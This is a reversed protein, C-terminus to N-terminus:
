SLLQSHWCGFLKKRERSLSVCSRSKCWCEKWRWLWWRPSSVSCIVNQIWNGTARITKWWWRVRPLVEFFPGIWLLVFVLLTCSILSALQTKGGVSYQILSRSLSASSPLCCFFSGLINGAGQISSTSHLDICMTFEGVFSLCISVMALLEQNFDIEYKQKQAFILAMSVTVSYSVFAIACSDFILERWLTFDHIHPEPFGTPIHGVSKVQYIEDFHFIKAIVTGGVVAILEIPIPISSRRSLLPKLIENNFLLITITIVSIIIAAYNVGDIVSFIAWYTQFYFLTLPFIFHELLANCLKLLFTEVKDLKKKGRLIGEFAQFPWNNEAFDPGVLRQNAIHACSIGCWYHLWLRSVRLAAVFPRWTTPRVDAVSCRSM